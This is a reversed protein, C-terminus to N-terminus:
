QSIYDIIKVNKRSNCSRCLPQINSIENSGGKSLPVIHDISLIIEPEIRKCCLCMYGFKKKLSEWEDLTFEGVANKKRYIRLKTYFSYLQKNNERHLKAYEKRNQKRALGHKIHPKVSTKTLSCVRSCFKSGRHEFFRRHISYHTDCVTCVLSVFRCNECWKSHARHGREMKFSSKCLSCICAKRRDRLSLRFVTRKKSIEAKEPTNKPRGM